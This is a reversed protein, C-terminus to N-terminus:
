LLHAAPKLTAWGNKASLRMREVGAAEQVITTAASGVYRIVQAKRMQM